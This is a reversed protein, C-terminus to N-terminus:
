AFLISDAKVWTCFTQLDFRQLAKGWAGMFTDSLDKRLGGSLKFEPAFRVNLLVMSM